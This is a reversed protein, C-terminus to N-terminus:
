SQKEFFKIVFLVALQRLKKSIVIKLPDL